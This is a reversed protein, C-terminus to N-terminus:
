KGSGSKTSDESPASRTSPTGTINANSHLWTIAASETTFTQEEVYDDNRYGIVPMITGAIETTQFNINEGGTEASDGNERFVTDLFWKAQYKKVGDVQLTKYYGFGGHPAVDKAGKKLVTSGGTSDLTYGFLTAKKADTLEDVGFTITGNQFKSAYEALSDDAYLTGEAFNLTVDAKIAKGLVIGTSYTPKSGSTQSTIPAFVPHKIGITAM